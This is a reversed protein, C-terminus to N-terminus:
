YNAGLESVKRIMEQSNYSTLVIVKKDIGKEKLYQLVEIGDVKPMVLDLLILDVEEQHKNILDIGDEGNNAVFSVEINTTKSFYEEIMKVLSSNDDIVLLKIKNM